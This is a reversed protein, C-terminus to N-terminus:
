PTCHKEVDQEEDQRSAATDLASHPASFLRVIGAAIEQFVLLPQRSDGLVAALYLVPVAESVHARM